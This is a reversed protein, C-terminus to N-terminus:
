GGWPRRHRAPRARRARCRRGSVSAGAGLASTGRRLRLAPDPHRAPRAPARLRHAASLPGPTPETDVLEYGRAAPQLRTAVCDDVARLRHPQHGVGQGDLSSWWGRPRRRGPGDAPAPHWRHQPAGGRRRRRRRDRPPRGTVGFTRYEAFRRTSTPSPSPKGHHVERLEIPDLEEEDEEVGDDGDLAEGADDREVDLLDDNEFPNRAQVGM